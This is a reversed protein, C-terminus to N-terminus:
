ARPMLIIKRSLSKGNQEITLIYTGPANGGLNIQENFYGSFRNIPNSYMVKGSTDMIRVTTPVAEAEFQVNVLGATPNPGVTLTEIQLGSPLQWQPAEVAPAEEVVEEIAPEEVALEEKDTPCAKFGAVINLREGERLVELRFAEGPKHKNRETLLEQYSNVAAGDMALIVDGTQVGSLKAPTNDIVGSVRVGGEAGSSGAYVGIFVKCPDREVPTYTYAYHRVREQAEAMREAAFEMREAMRTEMEEKHLRHQEMEEESCERFRANVTMEKGERLISLTFAEGQTHKDRERSLASQSNVPVGDLALIVDGAQVGSVSAPTDDITYSVRVQGDRSETGVGIFVKCPDRTIRTATNSFTYHKMREQAEAMREEAFKMREAMRTEIEEKRLRHQEMEEESCERFRANVTMEKGERLISLTFAEGQAHKDRERTLASQSNVPVGDLALIVDGAQVGSNHAPTHDIVYSVELQGEKSETGVGIFVKCPDRHSTSTYQFVRHEGSERLIRNGLPSRYDEQASLMACSLLLFMAPLGTKLLTLNKM